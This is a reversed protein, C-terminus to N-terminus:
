ISLDGFFSGMPLISVETRGLKVSMLLLCPQLFPLDFHKHCFFRNQPVQPALFGQAVLNSEQAVFIPEKEVLISEQAELISDQSVRVSEQAM